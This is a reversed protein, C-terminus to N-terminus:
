GIGEFPDQGGELNAKVQAILQRALPDKTTRELAGIEDALATPQAGQGFLGLTFKSTWDRKNRDTIGQLSATVREVDIGPKVASEIAHQSREIRARAAEKAAERIRGGFQTGINAASQGVAKAASGAGIVDDRGGISALKLAAQRRMEGTAVGREQELQAPAGELTRVMRDMERGEDSRLRAM